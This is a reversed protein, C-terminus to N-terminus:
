DKHTRQISQNTESRAASMPAGKNSDWEPDYRSGQHPDQDEEDEGDELEGDELEGEEVEDEVDEVEVSEEFRIESGKPAV